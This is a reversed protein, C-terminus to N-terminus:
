PKRDASCRVVSVREARFTILLRRFYSVAACGRREDRSHRTKTPHRTKIRAFVQALPKAVKQPVKESTDWIQKKLSKPYKKPATQIGFPGNETIQSTNKSLIYGLNTKEFIQPVKSPSNADWIARKEHNPINPAEFIEFPQNNHIKLYKRVGPIM